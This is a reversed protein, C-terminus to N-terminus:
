IVQDGVVILRALRERFGEMSFAQKGKEAKKPGGAAEPVGGGVIAEWGKLKLKLFTERYINWHCSHIHHRINTIQGTTNSWAHWEDGSIM